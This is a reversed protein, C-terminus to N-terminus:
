NDKSDCGRGTGLLDRYSQRLAEEGLRREPALADIRQWTELKEPPLYRYPDTVLGCRYAGAEGRELARCVETDGLEQGLSCVQEICCVGCGNCPAGEPPKDLEVVPISRADQAM